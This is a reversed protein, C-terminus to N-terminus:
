PTPCDGEDVDICVYIQDDGTCGQDDTALILVVVVGTGLTGGPMGFTARGDSGPSPVDYSIDVRTGDSLDFAELTAASVDGDEDEVRVVWNIPDDADLMTANDPADIIVEPYEDGGLADCEGGDDDDDVVSPCGFLPVFLLALLLTRIM